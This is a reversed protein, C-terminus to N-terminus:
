RERRGEQESTTIAARVRQAWPENDYKELETNLMIAVGKLAELLRERQVMLASHQNHRAIIGDIDSDEQEYSNWRGGEFQSISLLRGDDTEIMPRSPGDYVKHWEGREPAAPTDREYRQPNSPCDATHSDVQECNPCRYTIRPGGSAQASSRPQETVYEVRGRMGKGGFGGTAPHSSGFKSRFGAAQEATIFQERTVEEWETQHDAKLYYRESM